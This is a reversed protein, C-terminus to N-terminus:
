WELLVERVLAYSLRAKLCVDELSNSLFIREERVFEVWGKGTIDLCSILILKQLLDVNECCVMIMQDPARYILSHNKILFTNELTFDKYNKALFEAGKKEHNDYNFGGYEDEIPTGNGDPLIKGFDHYASALTIDVGSLDLLRVSNYAVLTIHKKLSYQHYKPSHHKPDDSLYWWANFDHAKKEIDSLYNNILDLENNMRKEVDGSSRAKLFHTGTNKESV